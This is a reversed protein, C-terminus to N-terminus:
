PQDGKAWFLLLPPLWAKRFEEDIRAPDALVGSGDPTLHPKCQLFLSPPVLNPRLWKYPHVMPDELIWSRWVRIAEDRRHVVVSHIFDSLRRHLGSVVRHFEGIGLVWVEGLDDHTVPYCPGAALIKDWQVTLEVARAFSVGGRIVADLVNIVAKFIRRMDLLPAISSDRYLFVGAGDVVDSVNDRVKRVKHGGLRVVRFLARGRGLVLGRSPIPCGCFRYADALAAEAAGSSVLWAHSVDDAGLSESLRQADQLSMFQLREDYVEWVWQVEAAKSRRSKWM